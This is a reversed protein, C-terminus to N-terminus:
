KCTHHRFDKRIASVWVYALCPTRNHCLLLLFFYFSFQVHISQPRSRFSFKRHQVSPVPVLVASNLYIKCITNEIQKVFDAFVQRYFDLSRIKICTGKDTGLVFLGCDLRSYLTCYVKDIRRSQRQHVGEDKLRDVSCHTASRHFIKLVWPLLSFWIFRILMLLLSFLVIHMHLCVLVNEEASRKRWNRKKESNQEIMSICLSVIITGFLFRVIDKVAALCLGSYRYCCCCFLFKYVFDGAANVKLKVRKTTTTALIPPSSTSSICFSFLM